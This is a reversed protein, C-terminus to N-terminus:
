SQVVATFTYQTPSLYPLLISLLVGDDFKYPRNRINQTCGTSLCVGWGDVQLAVLRCGSAAIEQILKRRSASEFSILKLIQEDFYAFSVGEFVEFTMDYLVTQRKSAEIECCDPWLSGLLGADVFGLLVLVLLVLTKESGSVATFRWKNGGVHRNCRYKKESLLKAANDKVSCRSPSVKHYSCFRGKEGEHGYLPRRRCEAEECRRSVVDVM